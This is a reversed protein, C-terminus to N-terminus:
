EYVLVGHPELASMGLSLALALILGQIGELSYPVGYVLQSLVLMAAWPHMRSGRWALGWLFLWAALGLLGAQMVTAVYHNHFGVDVVQGLMFRTSPTGIPKGIAWAWAPMQDPALAAAWSALRWVWTGGDTTSAGLAGRIAPLQTLAAGLLLLSLAFGWIARPSLGLGGGKRYQWIILYGGGVLAALWVSRHQVLLVLLLGLGAAWEYKRWALWILSIQGLLFAEGANIVRMPINVEASTSTGWAPNVILGTAVLVWRILITGVLFTFVAGMGTEMQDQLEPLDLFALGFVLFSYTVFTGRFGLGASKLGFALLGRAFSQFFMLGLVFAGFMPLGWTRWPRAALRLLAAEFVILAALDGVYANIGGVLLGPQDNGFLCQVAFTLGIAALGIVPRRYTQWGLALCALLVLPGLM